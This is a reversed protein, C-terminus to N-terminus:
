LSFDFISFFDYLVFDFFIHAMKNEVPIEAIIIRYTNRKLNLSCVTSVIIYCFFDTRVLM